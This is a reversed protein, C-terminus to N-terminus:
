SLNSVFITIVDTNLWVNTEGFENNPNTRSNNEWPSMDYTLNM